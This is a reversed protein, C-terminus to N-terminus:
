RRAAGNAKRRAARLALFAALSMVVAAVLAAEKIAANRVPAPRRMRLLDGVAYAEAKPPRGVLRVVEVGPEYMGIRRALVRNLEPDTKLRDLQAKLELNRQRLAEVNAALDQEYRSLGRYATLGSDGFFLIALSAAIFAVLGIPLLRNMDENWIVACGRCFILTSLANL